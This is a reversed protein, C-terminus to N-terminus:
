IKLVEAPLVVKHYKQYHKQFPPSIEAQCIHCQAKPAHAAQKHREVDNARSYGKGCLDCKFVQKKPCSAEHTKKKGIDALQLKCFRCHLNATHYASHKDYAPKSVFTKLCFTCLYEREGTECHKEKVHEHLHLRSQFKKDCYKCFHGKKRFIKFPSARKLPSKVWSPRKVPSKVSLLSGPPLHKVPSKVASLLSCPPLHKM